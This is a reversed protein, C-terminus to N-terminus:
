KATEDHKDSAELEALKAKIADLEEKSMFSMRDVINDDDDDCCPKAEKCCKSDVKAKVDKLNDKINRKLEENIVKGQEVTIEGAKVLKDVIEKSKAASTAIAGVGALFITKLDESIRDTM